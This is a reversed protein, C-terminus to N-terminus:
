LRHKCRFRLHAGNRGRHLPRLVQRKHDFLKVGYKHLEEAVTAIYDHLLPFVPLWDWRFHAGFLMAASVNAKALGEAKAKIRDLNDTDPWQLDPWHIWWSAIREHKDM